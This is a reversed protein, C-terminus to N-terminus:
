RQALEKQHIKKEIKKAAEVGGLYEINKRANEKREEPLTLISEDFIEENRYLKMLSDALLIDNSLITENFRSDKLMSPFLKGCYDQKVAQECVAYDKKIIDSTYLLLYPYVDGIFHEKSEYESSIEKGVEYVKRIFSKNSKIEEPMQEYLFYQVFEPCDRMFMTYFYFEEERKHQEFLEQNLDIIKESETVRNVMLAEKDLKAFKTAYKSFHEFDVTTIKIM